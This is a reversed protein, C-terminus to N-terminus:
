RVSYSVFDFDPRGPLDNPQKARYFERANVPLTPLMPVDPSAPYHRPDSVDHIETMWLIARLGLGRDYPFNWGEVMECAAVVMRPGGVVIAERDIGFKGDLVSWIAEELTRAIHPADDPAHKGAIIVDRGRTGHQPLVYKATNPGAIVVSGETCEVYHRLDEPYDRGWALGNAHENDGMVGDPVTRAAVIGFDFGYERLRKMSDM